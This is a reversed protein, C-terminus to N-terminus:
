PIARMGRGLLTSCAFTSRAFHHQLASLHAVCWLCNLQRSGVRVALWHVAQAPIRHHLRADQPQRAILGRGRRIGVARGALAVALAEQLAQAPEEELVVGQVEEGEHVGVLGLGARRRLRRGRGGSAAHLAAHHSAQALGQAHRRRSSGPTSGLLTLHGCTNVGLSGMTCELFPGLTTLQNHHM